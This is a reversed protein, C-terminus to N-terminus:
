QSVMQACVKAVLLRSLEIADIWGPYTRTGNTECDRDYLRARALNRRTPPNQQEAHFFKRVVAIDWSPITSELDQFSEDIAEKTVEGLVDLTQFFRPDACKRKRTFLKPWRTAVRKKPALKIRGQM